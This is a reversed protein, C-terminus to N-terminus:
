LGNSIGWKKLTEPLGHLIYWLLVIANNNRGNEFMSINQNSCGLEQAVEEQSLGQELRTYKCLMGIIKLPEKLNDYSVKHGGLKM